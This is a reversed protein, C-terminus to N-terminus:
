STALDNAAWQQSWNKYQNTIEIKELQLNYKMLFFNQFFNVARYNLYMFYYRYAKYSLCEM